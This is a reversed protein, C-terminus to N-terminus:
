WLRFFSRTIIKSLTITDNSVLLQKKQKEEQNEVKRFRSGDRISLRWGFSVLRVDGFKLEVSFAMYFKAIFSYRSLLEDIFNQLLPRDIFFFIETM